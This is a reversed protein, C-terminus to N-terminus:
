RSEMTNEKKSLKGREGVRANTLKIRKEYPVYEDEVTGPTSRQLRAGANGKKEGKKRERRTRGTTSGKNRTPNGGGGGGGGPVIGGDLTANPLSPNVQEGVNCANREGSENEKESPGPPGGGGGGPIYDM